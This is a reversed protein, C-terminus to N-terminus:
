VINQLNSNWIQEQAKSLSSGDEQNDQHITISKFNATLTKGQVQSLSHLPVDSNFADISRPTNRMIEDGYQHIVGKCKNCDPPLGPLKHLMTQIYDLNMIGIQFVQGIDDIVIDNNFWEVEPINRHHNYFWMNYAEEMSSIITHFMTERIIHNCGFTPTKPWLQHGELMLGKHFLLEM